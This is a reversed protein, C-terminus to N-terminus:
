LGIFSIHLPVTSLPLRLARRVHIDRQPFPIEINRESFEQVIRGIMESMMQRTNQPSGVWVLFRMNWSGDGFSILWMKLSFLSM